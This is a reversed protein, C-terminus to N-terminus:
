FRFLFTESGSAYRLTKQNPARLFQDRLELWRAATRPAHPPVLGVSTRSTQTSNRLGPMKDSPCCHSGQGKSVTLEFDGTKSLRVIAEGILTAKATRYMLQGTKTEWGAAPESFQHDSVSACNTLCLATLVSSKLWPGTPRLLIMVCALPKLRNRREEQKKPALTLETRDTTANCGFWSIFCGCGGRIPFSNGVNGGLVANVAPALGLVNRPALFVEIFEKTYWANVFRFLRGDRPESIARIARVLTKGQAPSRASRESRRRM